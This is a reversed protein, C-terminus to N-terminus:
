PLGLQRLSIAMLGIDSTNPHVTARVSISCAIKVFILRFPNNGALRTYKGPIKMEFANEVGPLCRIMVGASSKASEQM